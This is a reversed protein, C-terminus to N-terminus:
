FSNLYIIERKRELRGGPDGLIIVVPHHNELVPAYALPANPETGLTVHALNDEWRRLVDRDRDRGYGGVGVDMLCGLGGDTGGGCRIRGAVVVM